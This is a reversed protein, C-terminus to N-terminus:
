VKRDFFACSFGSIANCYNVFFDIFYGQLRNVAIMQTMRPCAAM